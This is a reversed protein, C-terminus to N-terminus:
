EKHNLLYEKIYNLIISPTIAEMCVPFIMNRACLRYDGILKCCDHCDGATININNDYGYYYLPTPGFLVACKTGLQSALHVLGGECDIHLVSDRLIYKIVEFSKDMINIDANHMVPYNKMGLQIVVINPFEKKIKKILIDYNSFNWMKCHKQSKDSAESWGYNITLYTDPLKLSKYELEAEKLLPINVHWDKVSLYEGYYHGEYQNWSSKKCRDYYIRDDLVRYASLGTNSIYKFIKEVKYAIDTSKCQLANYDIHSFVMFVGITISYDYNKLLFSYATNQPRVERVYECDSFLVEAIDVMNEQVYVDIVGDKGLLGQNYIAMILSKRVIIDGITGIIYASAIIINNKKCYEQKITFIKETNCFNIINTVNKHGLKLLNSKIADYAAIATVIIIDYDDTNDKYSLIPVNIPAKKIKDPYSDMIAIVSINKDGSLEKYVLRGLVGYGYIIVRLCDIKKCINAISDDTESNSLIDNITDIIIQNKNICLELKNDEM